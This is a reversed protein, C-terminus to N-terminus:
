EIKKLTNLIEPVGLKKKYKALKLELSQKM